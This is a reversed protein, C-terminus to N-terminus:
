NQWGVRWKIKELMFENHANKINNVYNRGLPVCTAGELEAEKYNISTIYNM